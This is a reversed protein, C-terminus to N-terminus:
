AGPSSFEFRCRVPDARQVGLDGDDHWDAEEVGGARFGERAAGQETSWQLGCASTAM